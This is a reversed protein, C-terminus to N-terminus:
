YDFVERCRGVGSVCSPSRCVPLVQLEPETVSLISIEVALGLNEPDGTKVSKEGVDYAVLFM